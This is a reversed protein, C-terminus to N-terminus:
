SQAQQRARALKKAEQLSAEMEVEATGAGFGTLDKRRVRGKQKIHLLAYLLGIVIGVLIGVFAAGDDLEPRKRSM